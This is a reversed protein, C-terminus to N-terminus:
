LCRPLAELVDDCHDPRSRLHIDAAGRCACLHIQRAVHGFRDRVVFREGNSIRLLLDRWPVQLLEGEIGLAIVPRRGDPARARRACALRKAM